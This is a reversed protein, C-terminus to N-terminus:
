VCSLLLRFRGGVVVFDWCLGVGIGAEVELWEREVSGEETQEWHKGSFVGHCGTDQPVLESDKLKTRM